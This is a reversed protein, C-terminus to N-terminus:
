IHPIIIYMRTHNANENLMLSSLSISMNIQTTTLKRLIACYAYKGKISMQAIELKKILFIIPILINMYIEQVVHVLSERPCYKEFQSGDGM